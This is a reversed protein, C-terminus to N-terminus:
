ELVPKYHRSLAIVTLLAKRGISGVVHIVYDRNLILLSLYDSLDGILFVEILPLSRHLDCAIAIRLSYDQDIQLPLSINADTGVGVALKAILHVLLSLPHHSEDLVHRQHVAPDLIRLFSGIKELSPHSRHSLVSEKHKFAHRFLRYLESHL